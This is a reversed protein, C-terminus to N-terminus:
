LMAAVSNNVGHLVVSPALSGSRARLWGAALGILLIPPIAWLRDMHMASFVTAQGLIALREGFRRTLLAQLWGRFFLEEALPALAVVYVLVSTRVWGVNTLLGEALIQNEVSYGLGQLAYGWASCALLLGVFLAPVAWWWRAAPVGGFPRDGLRMSAVGVSVNGAFTGLLMGVVWPGNAFLDAEPGFEGDVRHFLDPLTGGLALAGFVGLIGGAGIAFGLLLPGEVWWRRLAPLPRLGKAIVLGAAIALALDAAVVLGLNGPVFAM